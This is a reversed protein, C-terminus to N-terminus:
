WHSNLTARGYKMHNSRLNLTGKREQISPLVSPDLSFSAMTSNEDADTKWIVRVMLTLNGHPYTIVHATSCACYADGRPTRHVHDRSKKISDQLTPFQRKSYSVSLSLSLLIMGRTDETAQRRTSSPSNM